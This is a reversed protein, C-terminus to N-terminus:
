YVSNFARKYWYKWNFRTAALHKWLVLLVYALLIDVLFFLINDNTMPLIYSASLAQVLYFSLLLLREVNYLTKTSGSYKYFKYSSDHEKKPTKKPTQM